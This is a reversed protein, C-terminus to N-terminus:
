AAPPTIGAPRRTTSEAVMKGVVPGTTVNTGLSVTKVFRAPTAITSTRRLPPVIGSETTTVAVMFCTFPVGTGPLGTVNTTTNRGHPAAREGLQEERRDIAVASE